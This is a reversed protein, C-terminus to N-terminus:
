KPGNSELTSSEALASALARDKLSREAWRAIDNTAARVVAKGWDSLLAQAVETPTYAQIGNFEFPRDARIGPIPQSPNIRGSTVWNM